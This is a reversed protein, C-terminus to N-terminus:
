MFRRGNAVETAVGRKVRQGRLLGIRLCIAKRIVASATAPQSSSRDAAPTVAGGTGRSPAETAYRVTDSAAPDTVEPLTTVTVAITRSLEAADVTPANVAASFYSGAPRLNAPSCSIAV